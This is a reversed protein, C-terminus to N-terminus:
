LKPRLAVDLHEPTQGSLVADDLAGAAHIVATLPHAAPIGALLKQLADRDAADCSEVRVSAGLDTLESAIAAAGDAAPGSRSVLLLNRAGHHTVLHRALLTGLVGTGGTILVTGDPDLPKPVTLVLKGVHRARSLLRYAAPAQRIDWSRLPLPRLAGLEFLTAMEGLM